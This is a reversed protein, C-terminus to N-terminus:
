GKFYFCQLLLDAVCVLFQIFIFLLALVLSADDGAQLLLVLHHDLRQLLIRFNLLKLIGYHCKTILLQELSTFVEVNIVLLQKM